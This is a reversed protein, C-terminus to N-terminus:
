RCKPVRSPRGLVPRAPPRTQGTKFELRVCTGPWRTEIYVLLRAIERNSRGQEHLRLIAHIEAMALCNAM